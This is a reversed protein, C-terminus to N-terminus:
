AKSLAVVVAAAIDEEHSISLFFEIGEFGGKGEEGLVRIGPKGNGFVEIERFVLGKNGTAKVLAEKAAWRSAVFEANNRKVREPESLVREVFRDWYPKEMIKQIRSVKCIDIGIGLFKM